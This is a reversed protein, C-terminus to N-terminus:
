NFYTAFYEFFTSGFRTSFLFAIFGLGIVLDLIGSEEVVNTQEKIEVSVKDNEYVTM